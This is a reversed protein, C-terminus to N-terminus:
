HGSDPYHSERTVKLTKLKAIVDDNKSTATKATWVAVIHCHQFLTKLNKCEALWEKKGPHATCYIAKTICALKTVGDLSCMDSFDQFFCELPKSYM